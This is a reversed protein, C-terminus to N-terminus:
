YSVGIGILGIVKHKSPDGDTGVNFAETTDGLFFYDGGFHVNWTGFRSPAATFPVTVLAGIDFYGFKHDEGALEYYNDLSFGLKVPVAVTAGAGGLPWSPGVGIEAYTGREFGGDAQGRGPDTDFEFAVLGYPAYRSGQAVKFLVEKVTTFRGNPSTYATYQTTFSTAGAFGLTFSAYFDEEYHLGGVDSGSSGTHLSNWIGVNVAASKLAGDGSMLDIKLDAYPWMTLGPDTEQRIGRFLYLSPVDFAGSFTLAGPNPDPAQAQATAAMVVSLMVAGLAARVALGLGRSCTTTM